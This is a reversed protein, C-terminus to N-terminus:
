ASGQINSLWGRLTIGAAIIVIPFMMPPLPFPLILYLAPFGILGILAHSYAFTLGPNSYSFEMKKITRTTWGDTAAAVMFLAFYPVWTLLYTVRIVMGYWVMLLMAAYNNTFSAVTDGTQGLNIVESQKEKDSIVLNTLINQLGSEVFLTNFTSSAHSMLKQTESEGFVMSIQQEDSLLISKYSAVSMFIPEILMVAMWMILWILAHKAM